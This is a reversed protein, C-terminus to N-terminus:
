FTLMLEYRLFVSHDNNDNTYYDGPCFYEALFHGSIHRTYKYDLKATLLQGRFKGNDSFNIFTPDDKRTNEAAFLLHYDVCLKLKECLSSSWGAAVRHLNTAEAIRTEGAFSYIYNESWRPWRAWLPDFQENTSTSPDDGSLYEYDAHFESKKSDNLKYGLRSNFGFACLDTHELSDAGLPDTGEWSDWDQTQKQGLEQAFEARYNWNEDVAGAIRAGFAYINSENSWSSRSGNEDTVHSDRKYIFYGDLQGKPVIDKNTWYLIAGIEDQDTLGRVREQDNFPEITEDAESQQNIFIFDLANSEDLKYQFRAADFFITRSGDEPTGDLVLWANGLIIDQRGLTVDLPMDMFNKMKIYLRDFLAEDFEVNSDKNAAHPECYNQWEWMLRTNIELNEDLTFVGWARSRFRQFHYVHGPIDKSLTIINDSYIERLRQDFGWSLWDTPNKLEDVWKHKEPGEATKGAYTKVRKSAKEQAGAALNLVFVAVVVCITVKLFKKMFM